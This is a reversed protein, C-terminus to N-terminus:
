SSILRIVKQQEEKTLKYDKTADSLLYPKDRSISAKIREAIQKLNKM